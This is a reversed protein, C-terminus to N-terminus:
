ENDETNACQADANTKCNDECNLDSSTACETNICNETAKDICAQADYEQTQVAAGPDDDAFTVVSFGLMLVFLCGYKM